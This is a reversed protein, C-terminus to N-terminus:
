SGNGGVPRLPPRTWLWGAVVGCILLGLVRNVSLALFAASPSAGIVGAMLAAFGESVGLGAPVVTVVTGAIGAVAYYAADLLAVPVGIALFALWLRAVLVVLLSARVIVFGLAIAASSRSGIWLALGLTGLAGVTGVVVGVWTTFALSVGTVALALALWMLGAVALIAGAERLGAGAAVLAGGRIAVSAPVPLLNSITGTTTFVLARRLAIRRSLARACLQLEVANLVLSVPVGALGIVVLPWLGVRDWAPALEAVSIAMGALFAAAAISVIIRRHRLSWSRLDALRGFVPPEVVMPLHDNSSSSM